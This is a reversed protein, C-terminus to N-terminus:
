LILCTFWCHGLIILDTLRNNIFVSFLRFENLNSEFVQETSSKTGKMINSEMKRSKNHGIRLFIVISLTQTNHFTCYLYYTINDFTTITSYSRKTILLPCIQTKRMNNPINNSDVPNYNVWFIFVIM